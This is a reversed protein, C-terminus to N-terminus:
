DKLRIKQGCQVCFLTETGEPVPIEKHCHPCNLFIEAEIKTEAPEIVPTKPQTTINKVALREAYALLEARSARDLEDYIENIRNKLYDTDTQEAVVQSFKEGKLALEEIGNEIEAIDTVSCKLSTALKKVSSIKPNRDGNIWAGILQRSVGLQRGIDAQTNEASSMIALIKDKKLKM